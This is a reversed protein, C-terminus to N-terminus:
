AQITLLATPEFKHLLLTSFVDETEIDQHETIM